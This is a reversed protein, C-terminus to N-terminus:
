LVREVHVVEDCVACYAEDSDVETPECEEGCNPCEHLVYGFEVFEELLNNISKM